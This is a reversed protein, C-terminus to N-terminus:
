KTEHVEHWSRTPMQGTHLAVIQPRNTTVSYTTAIGLRHRVRAASRRSQLTDSQQSKSVNSFFVCAHDM